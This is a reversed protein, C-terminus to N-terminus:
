GSQTGHSALLKELCECMLLADSKRIDQKQHVFNDRIFKSQFILDAMDYTIMRRQKMTSILASVNVKEGAPTPILRRVINEIAVWVLMGNINCSGSMDPIWSEATVRQKWNEGTFAEFYYQARNESSRSERFEHRYAIAKQITQKLLEENMRSKDIYDILQKSAGLYSLFERVKDEFHGTVIAIPVDPYEGMLERLANLGASNTPDTSDLSIDLLLLDCPKKLRNFMTTINESEAVSFSEDIERITERIMERDFPSDDVILVRM